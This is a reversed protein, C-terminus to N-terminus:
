NNGGKRRIPRGYGYNYVEQPDGSALVNKELWILKKTQKLVDKVHHTVLVITIEKSLKKILSYIQRQSKQDVMATPEDLLLVEPNTALARAILMKQFEGGSLESIQRDALKELDVIDLVRDVDKYDAESFKYLPKTRAPLKATLIVDKVSIPFTRQVETVQPVYGVVINSKKHTTDLYTVSGRYPKVIGLISKLLTSKGGGNPGIVGIYDGKEITLSLDKLAEIRGYKVSINDIKILDSM